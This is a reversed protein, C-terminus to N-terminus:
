RWWPAKRDLPRLLLAILNWIDREVACLHRFGSHHQMTLLQRLTTIQGGRLGDLAQHRLTTRHRFGQFDGAINSSSQQFRMLLSRM